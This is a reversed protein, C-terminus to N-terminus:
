TTCLCPVVALREVTGVARGKIILQCVQRPPVKSMLFFVSMLITPVPAVLLETYQLISQEKYDEINTILFLDPFHFINVYKLPM